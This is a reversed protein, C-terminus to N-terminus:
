PECQTIVLEPEGIDIWDWRTTIPQMFSEPDTATQSYALRTGNDALTFTEIVEVSGSQPIANDDFYPWNIHTTRVELTDGERRGVSFGYKSAAVDTPDVNADLHITRVVSFTSMRLEISDGNDVFQVPLPNQMISPMGQPECLDFSHGADYVSQASDTLLIESQELTASYRGPNPISWIRFLDLEARDLRDGVLQDGITNSTWRSSTAGAFMVEVGDPRLLNTIRMAQPRTTSPWGAVTIPGLGPLASSDVGLRQLGYVASSELEWEHLQGDEDEARVTLTVHPNRWRVDILEGELELMTGRDYEAQSHHAHLALPMALMAILSLFSRIM